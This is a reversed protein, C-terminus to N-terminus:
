RTSKDLRTKDPKYNEAALAIGDRTIPVNSAAGIGYAFNIRQIHEVEATQETTNNLIDTIKKDFNNM